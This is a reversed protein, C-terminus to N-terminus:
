NSSVLGFIGYLNGKQWSFIQYPFVPPHRTLQHTLSYLYLLIALTLILQCSLLADLFDALLHIVNVFQKVVNIGNM